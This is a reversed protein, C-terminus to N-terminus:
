RRSLPFPTLDQLSASGRERCEDGAADYIAHFALGSRLGWCREDPSFHCSSPVAQGQCTLSKGLRHRVGNGPTSSSRARCRRSTRTAGRTRTSCLCSRCCRTTSASAWASRTTLELEWPMFSSRHSYVVGRPRGTTGSTFCM